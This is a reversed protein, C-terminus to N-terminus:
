ILIFLSAHPLTPHVTKICRRMKPSPWRKVSEDKPNEPVVYGAPMQLVRMVRRQKAGHSGCCPPGCTFCPSCRHSLALLCWLLRKMRSRGFHHISFECSCTKGVQLPCLSIEQCTGCASLDLKQLIQELSSQQEVRLICFSAHTVM